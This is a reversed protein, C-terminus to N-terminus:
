GIREAMLGYGASRGYEQRLGVSKLKATVALRKRNVDGPMQGVPNRNGGIGYKTEM